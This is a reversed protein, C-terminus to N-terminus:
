SLRSPPEKQNLLRAIKSLKVVVIISAIFYWIYVLVRILLFGGIWELVHGNMNEWM